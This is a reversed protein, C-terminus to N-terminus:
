LIDIKGNEIFPILIKKELYFNKENNQQSHNKFYHSNNKKYDLDMGTITFKINNEILLLSVITGITILKPYILNIWTGRYHLFRLFNKFPGYKYRLFLISNPDLLFHNKFEPKFNNLDKKLSNDILIIKENQHLKLSPYIYNNVFILDTKKGIYKEYGQIQSDNFRIVTKFQDIINGNEKLLNSPSNGVLIVPESISLEPFIYNIKKM